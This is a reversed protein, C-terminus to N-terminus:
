VQLRSGHMFTTIERHPAKSCLLHFHSHEKRNGVKQFNLIIYSEVCSVKNGQFMKAFNFHRYLVLAQFFYQIHLGCCAMVDYLVKEPNVNPMNSIRQAYCIVNQACM